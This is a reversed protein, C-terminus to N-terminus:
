KWTQAEMDFSDLVDLSCSGSAKQRQPEIRRAPLGSTM